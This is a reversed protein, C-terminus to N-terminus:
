SDEQHSSNDSVESDLLRQLGSIQEDTLDVERAFHALLSAGDGRFVRELFTRSEHGVVERRGIAPQYLYRKGDERYDVFGKKVLRGLLTKITKPQWDSTGGLREVVEGSSIPSRDWLVDMVQWEADSIKPKDSM